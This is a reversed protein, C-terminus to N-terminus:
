SVQYVSITIADNAYGAKPGHGPNAHGSLSVNFTHGPPGVLGSEVIQKAIGKALQVQERVEASKDGYDVLELQEVAEASDVKGGLSWSM